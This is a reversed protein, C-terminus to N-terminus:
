FRKEIEELPIISIVSHGDPSYNPNECAFLRDVLDQMEDSSLPKGYRIASAAALSMIIRERTKVKIDTQKDKYENLISELLEKPNPNQLDAPCGNLVVTNSGFDRVDFGLTHLDDILELTLLYDSPDLELTEPFLTQQAVSHNHALAHLYQEYLIREHAHHQDIVMLGSKVTTLIYRYKLQLFRNGAPQGELDLRQQTDPEPINNEAPM